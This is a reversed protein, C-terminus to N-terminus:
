VSIIKSITWERGKAEMEEPSLSQDIGYPGVRERTLQALVAGCGLTRGFTEALTRIYTGSSCDIRFSVRPHDYHTINFDEITIPRPTRQVVHGKRAWRYLPRGKYKVASYMPPTQFQPGKLEQAIAELTPLPFPPCEQQSILRGMMDGSDTEQGLVLTGSYTKSEKTLLTQCKTARGLLILLVGSAAPDLTGCHGAHSVRLVKKVYELVRFSTPGVPKNIIM